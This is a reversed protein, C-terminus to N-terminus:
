KAELVAIGDGGYSVNSHKIYTFFYVMVIIIGFCLYIDKLDYIHGLFLLYDISGKYIM